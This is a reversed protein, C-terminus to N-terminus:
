STHGEKPTGQLGQLLTLNGQLLELIVHCHHTSVVSGGQQFSAKHDPTLVALAPGPQPNHLSTVARLGM